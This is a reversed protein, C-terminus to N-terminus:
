RVDGARLERLIQDRETDIRDHVEQLDDDDNREAADGMEELADDLLQLARRTLDSM